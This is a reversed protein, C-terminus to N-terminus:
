ELIQMQQRPKLTFSKKEQVYRKRASDIPRIQYPAIHNKYEILNTM